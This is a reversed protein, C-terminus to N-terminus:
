SLCIGLVKDVNEHIESELTFIEFRHGHTDLIAPIIFFVRVYEGNKTESALKPLSHLSECRLHHTKSMFSKSAGTNLTASM